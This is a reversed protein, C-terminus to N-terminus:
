SKHETSSQESSFHKIEKKSLIHYPIEGLFHKLAIERDM